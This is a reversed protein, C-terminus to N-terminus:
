TIGYKSKLYTEVLQRNTDGLVADYLLFEAIDGTYYGEGGDNVSGIHPIDWLIATGDGSAPGSVYSGNKYYTLRRNTDFDHVLEILVPDTNALALDARPNDYYADWYGAPEQRIPAVSYNGSGDFIGFPTTSSPIIVIFFSAVNGVGTLNSMVIQQSTGNFRLVPYGNLINTKFLPRSGSSTQVADNGNATQDSWLYVTDGDNCPTTGNDSYVDANAKLWMLLNTQYELDINQNTMNKHIGLSYM